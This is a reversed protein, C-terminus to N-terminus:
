DEVHRDARTTGARAARRASDLVWVVVAGTAVPTWSIAVAVGALNAAPAAALEIWSRTTAFGDGLREHGGERLM